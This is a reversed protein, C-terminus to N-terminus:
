CSCVWHTIDSGAVGLAYHTYRREVLGYGMSAVMTGVSLPIVVLGAVVPDSDHVTRFLLATLLVLPFRVACNLLTSLNARRFVRDAFKSLDVLPWDVRREWWVFAMIGLVTVAISGVTPLDDWGIASRPNLGTVMAAVVVFSLAGGVVDFRKLSAVGAERPLVVAGAILALLSVPM